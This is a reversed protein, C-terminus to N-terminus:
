VRTSQAAIERPQSLVQPLLEFLQSNELRILLHYLFDKEAHAGGLTHGTQFEIYVIM